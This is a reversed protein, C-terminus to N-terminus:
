TMKIESDFAKCCNYGRANHYFFSHLKKIILRPKSQKTLFFSSKTDELAGNTLSRVKAKDVCNVIDIVKTIVLWFSDDAVGGIRSNSSIKRSNFVFSGRHTFKTKKVLTSESSGTCGGKLTLFQLHHETLLKVTM